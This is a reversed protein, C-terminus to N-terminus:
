LGIKDIVEASSKENLARAAEFEREMLLYNTIDTAIYPDRYPNQLDFSEEAFQLLEESSMTCFSFIREIQEVHLKPKNYHMASYSIGASPKVAMCIHPFANIESSLFMMAARQEDKEVGIGELYALGLEEGADYSGMDFAKQHLFVHWDPATEAMYSTYIVAIRRGRDLLTNIACAKLRQAREEEPFYHNEVFPMLLFSPLGNLVAPCESPLDDRSLCTHAICDREPMNRSLYSIGPESFAGFVIIGFLAFFLLGCIVFLKM